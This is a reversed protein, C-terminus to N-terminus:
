QSSKSMANAPPLRLRLSAEILDMDKASHTVIPNRHGVLVHSDVTRTALQQCDDLLVSMQPHRSNLDKGAWAPRTFASTSSLGIFLNMTPGRNRNVM